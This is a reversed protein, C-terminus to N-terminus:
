FYYKKVNFVNWLRAVPRADLAKLRYAEAGAISKVKYPGEWNPGLKGMTSDRTNGLVKRLVLDGPIFERNKIGKKYGQSIKQQYNVLRVLAVDCTEEVLDLHKYLLQDNKGVEFINTWSTTLGAEM